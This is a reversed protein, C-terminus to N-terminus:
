KAEGLLYTIKALADDYRYLAQLYNLRTQDSLDETEDLQSSTILGNAFAALADEFSNRAEALSVSYTDIQKQAQVADTYADFLRRSLTHEDGALRAVDARLGADAIKQEAEQKGFEFPWTIQVGAENQEVSTFPVFPRTLYAAQAFLSVDPDNTADAIKLRVRDAQIRTLDAKISPESALAESLMGDFPALPPESLTGAASSVDGPKLGMAVALNDLDEGYSARANSLAQEAARERIQANFYDLRPASGIRYLQEATTENLEAENLFWRNARIQELGFLLQNYAQKVALIKNLAVQRSTFEQSTLSLEAAKVRNGLRGGNYISYKAMLSIDFSNASELPFAFPGFAVMLVPDTHVGEGSGYLSPLTDSRALELEGRKQEVGAEAAAIDPHKSLAIRICEELTLNELGDARVAPCITLIFLLALVIKCM